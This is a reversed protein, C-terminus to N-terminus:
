SREKAFLARFFDFVTEEEYDRLEGADLFLGYCTPCSEYHIHPQRNDVMRLMQTECVPCEIRDVSDFRKGVKPDGIDIEDSGELEKLHELELMDFWLGACATCRNIEITSYGVRAMESNCKPCNM